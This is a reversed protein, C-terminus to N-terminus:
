DWGQLVSTMDPNAHNGSHGDNLLCRVVQRRHEPDTVYPNNLWPQVREDCQEAEPDEWEGEDTYARDDAPWSAECGECRFSEDYYSTEKGCISCDPCRAELPPPTPRENALKLLVDVHCPTGLKCWCALNFGKLEDRIETVLNPKRDLHEKFLQVAHWQDRVKYDVDKHTVYVTGVRFPNGWRTPRAVSVTNEPMRWGKHRKLQVRQPM